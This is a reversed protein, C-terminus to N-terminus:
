MFSPYAFVLAEDYWWVHPLDPLLPLLDHLPFGQLPHGRGGTALEHGRKQWLQAMGQAHTDHQALTRPNRTWTCLGLPLVVHTSQRNHTYDLLCSM